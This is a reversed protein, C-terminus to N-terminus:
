ESENKSTGLENLRDIFIRLRSFSMQNFKFSLRELDLADNDRVEGPSPKPRSIGNESMIDSFEDQLAQLEADSLRRSHRIVLNKGVMRMSHYNAYFAEIHAAAEEVDNTVFLLRYDDESILRREGLEDKVFKLWGPWYSSGPPDLLVVPIPYSKGTQLLTLVEFAEDLTGFGGPLMCFGDSEKVFTLKRTFFYRFNILKPDGAIANNAVQEFPLNINIGFSKDRGAGEIGAQMIGPGAGTMVMWDAKAMRASFAKACQYAPDDAAIRASGFVSVKRVGRYPAFVNYVYRLEKLTYNAMKVEGRAVNELEMRLSSAIIEFILAAKSRANTSEVLEAIRRDLKAIGTRYRPLGKIFPSEGQDKPTAQEDEDDGFSTEGHPIQGPRERYKTM